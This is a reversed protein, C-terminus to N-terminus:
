ERNDYITLYNDNKIIGNVYKSDTIFIKLFERILIKELVRNYKPFYIDKIIPKDKDLHTYYNRTYAIYDYVTSSKYLSTVHYKRFINLLENDNDLDSIRKSLDIRTSYQYVISNAIEEHIEDIKNVYKKKFDSEKLSKILNDKYEDYFKCILDHFRKNKKKLDNRNEKLCSIKELCKCMNLFDNEITHTNYASFYFLIAEDYKKYSEFWRNFMINIDETLKNYYTRLNYCSYGDSIYYCNSFDANIILKNETIKIPEHKRYKSNFIICNVNCSFGMLVAFFRTIIQIYEMIKDVSIIKKSEVCIYPIVRFNNITNNFIQDNERFYKIEIKINENNYLNIGKPININIRSDEEVITEFGLWENLPEFTFRFSYINKSLDSNDFKIMGEEILYKAKYKYYGVNNEILMCNYISLRKNSANGTIKRKFDNISNENITLYINNNKDIECEGAHKKRDFYFEGKLIM